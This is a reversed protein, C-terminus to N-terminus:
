EDGSRFVFEVVGAKELQKLGELVAQVNEPYRYADLFVVRIRPKQQIRLLNRRVLAWELRACGGDQFIAAPDVRVTCELLELADAELMM